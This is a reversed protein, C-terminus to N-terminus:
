SKTGALNEYPSPFEQRIERNFRCDTPCHTEEAWFRRRLHEWRVKAEYANIVSQCERCSIFIGGDGIIYGQGCRWCIYPYGLQIEWSETMGDELPIGLEWAIGPQEEFDFRTQYEIDTLKRARRM